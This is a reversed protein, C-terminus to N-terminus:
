MYVGVPRRRGENSGDQGQRSWPRLNMMSSNRLPLQMPMQPVPPADSLDSDARARAKSRQPTVPRSSSAPQSRPASTNARRPSKTPLAPPTLSSIEPFAALRPESSSGSTSTRAFSLTTSAPRLDVNNLCHLDQLGGYNYLADYVRDQVDAATPRYQPDPSQMDAILRFLPPLANLADEHKSNANVENELIEMWTQVKQANNHFSTDVHTGKGSANKYKTARHKSFEHPKRKLAFTIIDLFVCSLSYIDSSRRDDDDHTQRPNSTISAAATTGKSSTSFRKDFPHPPKAPPDFDHPSTALTTGSQLSATSANLIPTITAESNSRPKFVYHGKSDVGLAPSKEASKDSGSHNSDNSKRRKRFLKRSTVPIPQRTEGSNKQEDEEFLEPAGYNFLEDPEFKKDKQFTELFGLDSYAINNSADVVFNSPCIASHALRKRHLYATANALCHLWQLVIRLREQKSTKQMSAPTRFDIFSRLTHEGVFSTMIFGANNHSWTAMVPAIHDHEITRATAVDELFKDLADQNMEEGKGGLIVKRKAYILTPMKPLHFRSWKQLAASPAMQHVYETPVVENTAYDIHGHLDLPRLLFRFQNHYFRKNLSDDNKYSLALRPIESMAIPLDDDDWADEAIGFIQDSCNCEVLTLFIRKAKSLIWDLYTDETLGDDFIPQFLQEREHPRLKSVVFERTVKADIREDTWWISQIASHPTLASHGGFGFMVANLAMTDATVVTTLSRGSM